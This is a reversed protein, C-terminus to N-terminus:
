ELILVAGTWNGAPLRLTEGSELARTFVHMRTRGPDNYTFSQDLAAWGDLDLPDQDTATAITVLTDAKATVEMIGKAGGPLQTFPKGTLTAPVDHWQYARNSFATEGDRLRGIRFASGVLDLTGTAHKVPIFEPMPVDADRTLARFNEWRHFTLFNADHNNRAGGEADDWATRCAAILDAGDFLWDLYQFGHNAVDPHYLLISRVEWDHLDASHVLALTNRVSAPKRGVAHRELAITAISWYGPGDPDKRITIKKSGGPFDILDNQPDFSATTGDASIRVIAAKEPLGSDVRLINLMSGDPAAVANGELWASFGDDPLWSTERALPNSITWSAPDLLDADAPASMMRARYREGWKSGNEADEIARWLRGNHEIVPMPATHWQGDALIAPDTWTNGNDDSRRILIRGHHKDLGLLYVAGRHTFLGTWFFGDFDRLHSWRGGRDTSRYLRGRAFQYENSQPGFLDHSALYSGDPAICIAPSGIYRGSSAPSHHIVTGPPPTIERIVVAPLQAALAAAQEAAAPTDVMNESEMLHADYAYLERSVVRGTAIERWETYRHSADRASYGMHRPQGLDDPHQSFAVTKVSAQPDELLPRLSVGDLKQAPAPLGCLELLTPYLDVLEVLASTAKGPEAAGPSDIILPVRTDQEFNTLKGIMEHEGLHYGNDSWFVIHTTERLGLRDLEAIVRGINADLYSVGALDGHRLELLKASDFPGTKPMGHYGRPEPSGHIAIDPAGHPRAPHSPPSLKTRDYLDWWRKPANYPLHPKWFGVALFFPQDKLEGLAEIAANAIRGDIYADDPVDLAQTAPLRDFPVDRHGPAQPQDMRHNGWHYRQPASWSDPDGQIKLHYNHYIKGIGVAQYGHTKFQQSVTTIDPTTERFHTRLDTVGIHDPRRGTMMSARSPNCVAQQCYAREFVRGRAALADLHPTLAESHGYAALDCRLDDAVIMLVNPKGAATLALSGALLAISLLSFPKMTRTPPAM